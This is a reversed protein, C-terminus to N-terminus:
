TEHARLHTYAVAAPDAAHGEVFRVAVKDLITVAEAVLANLDAANPM